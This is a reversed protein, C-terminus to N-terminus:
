YKLTEGSEFAERIRPAGERSLDAWASYSRWGAAMHQEWGCLM